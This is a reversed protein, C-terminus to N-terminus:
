DIFKPNSSQCRYFADRTQQEDHYLGFHKKDISRCSVKSRMCGKYEKANRKDYCVHLGELVDKPCSMADAKFWSNKDKSLIMATLVVGESSSDDTFSISELKLYMQNNLMFHGSDCEGGCTFGDVKKHCDIYNHRFIRGSVKTVLAISKREAIEGLSMLYVWEVPKLEKAKSDTVMFKSSNYGWCKAEDGVISLTLLIFVLLLKKM